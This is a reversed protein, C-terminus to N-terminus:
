FRVVLSLMGGHYLTDDVEVEPRHSINEVREDLGQGPKIQNIARGTDSLWLLFYGLRLSLPKALYVEGAVRLEGFVGGVDKSDSFEWHYINDYDHMIVDQDITGFYGGFSTDLVFSFVSCVRWWFGLGVQGGFLWNDMDVNLDARELPYSQIPWTDMGRMHFADRIWMVRPGVRGRLRFTTPNRWLPVYLNAEWSHLDTDLELDVRAALDFEDIYYGSPTGKPNTGFLPIIDEEPSIITMERRALRGLYALSVGWDSPWDYGWEGRWGFNGGDFGWGLLDETNFAREGPDLRYDGDRDIFFLDEGPTKEVLYLFSFDGWWQGGSASARSTVGFVGLAMIMLVVVFVQITRWREM